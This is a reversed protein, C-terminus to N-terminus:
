LQLQASTAAPLSRHLKGWFVQLNQRINDPREIKVDLSNTLLM